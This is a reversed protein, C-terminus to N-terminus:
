GLTHIPHYGRDGTGPRLGHGISRRAGHTLVLRDSPFLINLRADLKRRDARRAQRSGEGKAESFAHTRDACVGVLPGRNPGQASAAAAMAVLGLSDGFHAASRGRDAGGYSEDSSM